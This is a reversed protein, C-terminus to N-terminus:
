FSVRVSGPGVAVRESDGGLRDVLLLTVGTALTVGGVAFTANALRQRSQGQAQLEELEERPHPRAQIEQQADDAWFGALIATFLLGGGSASTIRGARRLPTITRPQAPAPPLIPQQQPEPQPPTQVPPAPANVVPAAVVPPASLHRLAEECPGVLAAFDSPSALTAYSDGVWMSRPVDVTEYHVVWVGDSAVISVIIVAEIPTGALATAYCDAVAGCSMIRDRMGFGLADDADYHRTADFGADGAIWASEEVIDSGEEFTVDYIDGPVVMIRTQAHASAAGLACTTLLALLATRLM